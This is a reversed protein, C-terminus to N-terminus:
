MCVCVYVDHDTCGGVGVYVAICVYMCVGGVYMCVYMCVYM